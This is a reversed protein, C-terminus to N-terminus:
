PVPCCRCVNRQASTYAYNGITGGVANEYRNAHGICTARCGADAVGACIARMDNGFAADTTAKPRNCTDYGRDHTDCAPAFSPANGTRLCDWPDSVATPNDPVNFIGSGCGNSSPPVRQSRNPCDNPDEINAIPHAPKVVNNDCCESATQYKKQGGCCDEAPRTFIEGKCCGQSANSPADSDDPDKAPAGSRCVEKNCDGPVPKPAESDDNESKPAGSRCVEKKCDDPAKQKPTEGDNPDSKVSGGRCVEKKCDDPAKQPPTQGDDAVCNPTVCKKCMPCNHTTGSGAPNGGCHWGGKVIGMGPDSRLTTGDESVTATGTAVFSGM